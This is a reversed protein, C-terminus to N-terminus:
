ERQVEGAGGCRDCPLKVLHFGRQVDIKGTGGCEQCVLPEVADKLALLYAKRYRDFDDASGGRDPHHESALQRWRQKVQETTATPQLGLIEFHENM